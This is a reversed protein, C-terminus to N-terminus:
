RATRRASRAAAPAHQRDQLEPAAAPHVPRDPERQAGPQPQRVRQEIKRGSTTGSSTTTRAGRCTRSPRCRRLQLRDNVLKDSAGSFFSSVPNTSSQTMFTSSLDADVRDQGGRHDLDQLQPDLRQVQLTLNQELALRVAEDLSLPRAKGDRSPRRRRCAGPGPRRSGVTRVTRFRVGPRPIAAFVLGLACRRVFHSMSMAGTPPGLLLRDAPRRPEPAAPMTSRGGRESLTRKVRVPRGVLRHFIGTWRTSRGPSDCWSDHRVARGTGGTNRAARPGSGGTTRGACGRSGATRAPAAADRLVGGDEAGRQGVAHAVQARGGHERRGEAAQDDAVLHRAREADPRDEGLALVADEPEPAAERM